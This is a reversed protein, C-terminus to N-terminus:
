WKTVVPGHMVGRAPVRSTGGRGDEFYFYYDHFPDAYTRASYCYLGDYSKGASLSMRHPVGDVYVIAVAAPDLDEDRYNVSYGFTTQTSGTSPTVREDLLVPSKNPPAEVQPGRLFGHQPLTVCDGKEDVAAFYYAHPGSPLMAQYLYDGDKPSGKHLKMDHWIGDVAVRVKRPRSVDDKDAYHVKFTYVARDTGYDFYVGGGTLISMRNYPKRQGVFPGPKAGYRPWREDAGRADQAYFYYAHEGPPLTLRARYTGDSSRGGVLRMPYANNDVYVEVKAPADDDQDRYMVSAVYVTRATGEQPTMMAECLCPKHNGQAAPSLSAFSLVLLIVSAAAFAYHKVRM